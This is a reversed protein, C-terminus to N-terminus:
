KLQIKSAKRAQKVQKKRVDSMLTEEKFDNYTKFEANEMIFDKDFVYDVLFEGEDRYQWYPVSPHKICYKQYDRDLWFEADLEGLLWQKMNEGTGVVVDNLYSDKVGFCLILTIDYDRCDNIFPYLLDQVIEEIDGWEYSQPKTRKPNRRLWEYKSYPRFMDINDIVCVKYKKSALMERWEPTKTEFYKVTKLKAVRGKGDVQRFSIIDIEYDPFNENIVIHAKRESDLYLVRGYKGFSAASRTKGTGHEGVLGIIKANGTPAKTTPLGGKKAVSVKTKTKKALDKKSPMKEDPFDDKVKKKVELSVKSIKPKTKTKIKPKTKKKPKVAEDIADQMDNIEEEPLDETAKKMAKQLLNVM